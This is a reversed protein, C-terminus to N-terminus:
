QDNEIQMLRDIEARSVGAAQEPGRLATQIAAVEAPTAAWFEDPRWGLLLACQGFIRAANDAFRPSGATESM